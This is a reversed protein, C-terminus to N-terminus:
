DDYSLTVETSNSFLCDAVSSFALNSNASSATATSATSLSLDAVSQSMALSSPTDCDAAASDASWSLRPKSFYYRGATVLNHM